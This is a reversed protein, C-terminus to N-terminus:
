RPARSTQPPHPVCHTLRERQKAERAERRAELSLLRRVSRGFWRRGHLEARIGYRAARAALRGLGTDLVRQRRRYHHELREDSAWFASAYHLQGCMRCLLRDDAWFLATRRQDCGPCRFLYRHGGFACAIAALHLVLPDPTGSARLVWLTVSFGDLTPTWTLRFPLLVDVTLQYTPRTFLTSAKLFVGQKGQAKM